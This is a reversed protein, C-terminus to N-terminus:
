LDNRSVSRAEGGERDPALALRVTFTSGRGEASEVGIEGGHLDVIERVVFLGVGMGARRGASDPARFYREFLRPLAEPAIGIGCDAVAVIAREEDRAVCVRVMTDDRSYRRANQLLNQVVQELRLEDGLVIPAERPGEFVVRPSEFPASAEEVVRSVLAVLDVPAREIALRGVDIRSVDLMTDILRRMRKTQDILMGLLRRERPDLDSRRELRLALLRASGQLATLPNKLEHSAIGLFDDRLRVAAEANARADREQALLRAREEAIRERQRLNRWLLAAVGVLLAVGGLTAAILTRGTTRRAASAAITRRDLLAQEEAEMAAVVTRVEDMLQKGRGSRVLALAAEGQGAQRM